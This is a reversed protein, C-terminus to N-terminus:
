FEHLDGGIHGIIQICKFVETRFVDSDYVASSLYTLTNIVAILAVKYSEDQTTHLAGYLERTLSDIYETKTNLHEECVPLIKYIKGIIKQFYTRNDNESFTIGM